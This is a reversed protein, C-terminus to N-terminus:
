TVSGALGAAGIVERLVLEVYGDEGLVNAGVLVEESSRLVRLRAVSSTLIRGAVGMCVHVSRLGPEFM